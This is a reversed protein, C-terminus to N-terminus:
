KKADSASIRPPSGSFAAGQLTLTSNASSSLGAWRFLYDYRNDSLDFVISAVAGDAAFSWVEGTAGDGVDVMDFPHWGTENVAAGPSGQTMARVNEALAQLKEDTVAKGAALATILVADDTWDAM